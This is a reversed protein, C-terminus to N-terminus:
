VTRRSGALTRYVAILVIAGVVSMILSSDNSRTVDAGFLMSGVFGGIIGGVVGVVIDGGVVYGGGRMITSALAGAILGLAMWALIFM